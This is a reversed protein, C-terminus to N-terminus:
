GSSSAYKNLHTVSYELLLYNFCHLKNLPFHITFTGIIMFVRESLGQLFLEQHGLHQIFCSNGVQDATFPLDLCGAQYKKKLIFNLYLRYHGRSPLSPLYPSHPTGLLFHVLIKLLNWTDLELPYNKVNEYTHILHIIITKAGAFFFFSCGLGTCLDLPFVNVWFGGLLGRINLGRGTSILGISLPIYWNGM